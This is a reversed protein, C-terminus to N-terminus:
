YRSIDYDEQDFFEKLSNRSSCSNAMEESESENETMEIDDGMLSQM